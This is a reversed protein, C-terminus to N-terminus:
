GKKTFIGPDPLVGECDFEPIFSEAASGGEQIFANEIGLGCAFDVLADYERATVKRELEPYPLGSPPTYQSMISYWVANGYRGFLYELVAKSDDLCGPLMMHRIIVGRKIIGDGDFKCVPARAFMMDIAAAAVQPYDPARSYKKALRPSSYKMDPMWVDTVGSLAEIAEPTEYGSCNCIVPIGLGRVKANGLARCVQPIYCDPTVLDINHAGKRELELFIDSLRDISIEMGADGGSIARNQCYVCGLQCGSFFVTGAGKTGSVCPEEWFHLAARAVKVKDTCGCRGRTKTRDARCKRPCLTCESYISEEM